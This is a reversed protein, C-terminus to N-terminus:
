SKLRRCSTDLRNFRPTKLPKKCRRCVGAVTYGPETCTPEKGAGAAGAVDHGFKEVTETYTHSSDNRCVYRVLGDEECTAEKEVKKEYDHDAKELPESEEKGCIKCTRM